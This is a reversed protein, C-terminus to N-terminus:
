GHATWTESATCYSNDANLYFQATMSGDAAHPNKQDVTHIHGSFTVKSDHAGNVVNSAEFYFYGSAQNLVAGGSSGSNFGTLDGEPGNPYNCTYHWVPAIDILRKGDSSIKFSLPKGDENTGSFSDNPIAVLPQKPYQPYGKQKFQATWKTSGNCSVIRTDSGFGESETFAIAITGSAQSRNLSGKIMASGGDFLPVGSKAFKRKSIAIPGTTRVRHLSSLIEGRPDTCHTFVASDLARLNSHDAGFTITHQQGTLGQYTGAKFSKTKALAPTAAILALGAFLMVGAARCSVASRFLM